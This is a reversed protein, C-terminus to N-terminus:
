EEGLLKHFGDVDPLM